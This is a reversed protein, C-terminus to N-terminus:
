HQLLEVPTQSGVLTQVLTKPQQELPLHLKPQGVPSHQEAPMQTLAQGSPPQQVLPV